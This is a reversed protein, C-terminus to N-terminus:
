RPPDRRTLSGLWAEIEGRLKTSEPDVHPELSAIAEEAVRRAEDDRPPDLAALARSWALRALATRRAPARAQELIRLAREALAAAAGARGANREVAAKVLLAEVQVPSEPPLSAETVALARDLYGLAAAENGQRREIEGLNVLTPVLEPHALGHAQEALALARLLTAKAQPLQGQALEVLALNQLPAALHVSRLGESREVIAIAREFSARAEEHAHARYQLSGLNSLSSVLEMHEPGLIAAKIALAERFYALAEATRGQRDAVVGLNNLSMAVYPHHAGLHDRRLALARQHCAAAAELEDLALHVIALGNLTFALRVDDPGFAQEQLALAREYSARARAFDGRRNHITAENSLALAEAGPEAAPRVAHARATLAWKLGVEHKAQREGVVFSLMAAADAAVADHGAATAATYAEEFAAVAEETRGLGNLAWGRALALEARLPPHDVSAATSAAGEVLGLSEDFRAAFRLTRAEILEDRLAEVQALTEADEPPPVAALLAPVDACRELDPLQAVLGVAREVAAPEAVSLVDVAERLAVKREHLCATRLAVVSEPQERRVRAEECVDHSADVWAEAYADLRPEVGEWAERAYPLPSSTGIRRGAIPVPSTWSTESDSSMVRVPM